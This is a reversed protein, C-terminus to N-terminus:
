EVAKFAVLPIVGYVHVVPGVANGAPKLKLEAPTILPVGVTGPVNYANMTLTVSLLLGGCLAVCVNLKVTFGGLTNLM